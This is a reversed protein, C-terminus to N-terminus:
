GFNIVIYLEPILSYIIYMIFLTFLSIWLAQEWAIDILMKVLVLLMLFYIIPVLQTLFNQGGGDLANRAEALLNGIAGLVLGFAGAVIPLILVALFAVILIMVKKDSAKHDSIIVKVTLYMILTVIITAIVLGIIFILSSEAGGQFLM